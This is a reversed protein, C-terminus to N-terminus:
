DNNVRAFGYYVNDNLLRAEVHLRLEKGDKTYNVVDMVSEGKSELENVFRRTIKKDTKPGQLDRFNMGVIDDKSFKCLRCWADNAYYIQGDLASVFTADNRTQMGLLDQLRSPDYWFLESFFENVHSHNAVSSDESFGTMCKERNRRRMTVGIGETRTHELSEMSDEWM